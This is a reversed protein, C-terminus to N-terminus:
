IVGQERLRALEEPTVGLEGWVAENDQGLTPATRAMGPQGESFLYPDGCYRSTGLWPHEGEQFLGLAQMHEDRAADAPTNVPSVPIHRAQGQESLEAVTHRRTFERVVADLVDVNARRFGEDHWAEDALTEPRGMWDFFAPWTDIVFCHVFGDRAPYIGGPAARGHQAGERRVVHGDLSYRSIQNEQCALVDQASVEVRQGHGLFSRAHLAVLTGFAAHVCAAYYAQTEPAVCPPRHPEGSIGLLGGMAFAVIDPARYGSRPGTLGFGTISTHVLAPNRERLTDHGLGISDLYGPPRDEVVVDATEILALFLRRGADTHLDLTVGRKNVNLSAFRLSTEPHPLDDRFPGVSRTPDGEPPEIKVVDAGLDALMKGCLAGRDDTLDLVRYDLLRTM